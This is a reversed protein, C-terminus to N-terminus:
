DIKFRAKTDDELVKIVDDLVKKFVDFQEFDLFYLVINHKKNLFDVAYKWKKENKFIM